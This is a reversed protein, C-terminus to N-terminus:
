PAVFRQLVNATIRSVAQDVLLSSIYCISGTSFVAGGGAVQFVVMEAGGQDPNLGRALIQVQPPSHPGTKDTEHGSAGGPIREHLSRQGFRDGKALGTGRFVWHDAQVVEYPAATMIGRDDYMVGLLKAEPEHRAAFRSPIGRRSHDTTDTNQVIMTAPDTFEVECNLGNGGLYMLRGGRQFVWEKVRDYM